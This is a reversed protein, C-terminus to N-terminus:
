KSRARLMIAVFVLGVAVLFGVAGVWVASSEGSYALSAAYSYSIYTIFCSAAICTWYLIYAKQKGM